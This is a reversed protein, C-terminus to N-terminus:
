VTVMVFGVLRKVEGSLGIGRKDRWEGLDLADILEDARRAVTIRDGGRIRGCLVIAEWVRFSDIPVQAQPLYSYLQRAAAPDAVLDHRGLTIRGSTPRLLGILQKVLTTKGASNPGLLGYVEGPEVHLSIADNARVGNPYIKTVNDARFTWDEDMRAM